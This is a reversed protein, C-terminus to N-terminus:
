SCTSGINMEMSTRESGASHSGSTSSTRSVTLTSGLATTTWCWSTREWGLSRARPNWRSRGGADTAAEETDPGCGRGRVSEVSNTRLSTSTLMWSMDSRTDDGVRRTDTDARHRTSKLESFKTGQEEALWRGSGLNTVRSRSQRARRPTSVGPWTAGRAPRRPAM